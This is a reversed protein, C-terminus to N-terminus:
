GGLRYQHSHCCSNIACKDAVPPGQIGRIAYSDKDRAPAEKDLRILVRLDDKACNPPAPLHQQKRTPQQQQPFRQQQQTAFVYKPKAAPSPAQPMTNNNLAHSWYQLFSDGFDKVFAFEHGSTYQSATEDFSSCFYKFVKIRATQIDSAEQVLRNARSTISVAPKDQTNFISGNIGKNTSEKHQKQSNEPVHCTPSSSLLVEPRSQLDVEMTMISDEVHKERALQPTSPARPGLPGVVRNIELM